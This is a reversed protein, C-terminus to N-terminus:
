GLGVHVAQLLAELVTEEHVARGHLRIAAGLERDWAPEVPVGTLAPSGARLGAEYDEARMLWPQVGFQGLLRNTIAVGAWDFDGHYRLLCGSAVLRELVTTVVTNPEGSTCVVPARGAYRDAIAELVRPNECVLVPAAVDVQAGAARRLDLATLHVPDGADAAARLRVALGSEGALRLGLTLCTSSVLDATVGHREWLRRRAQATSPVPVSAAAALARLVLQHAPRDQDLAHADGLLQAALEVRSRAHPADGLVVELVRVADAMVPVAEARSSLLGSSRLGALWPEIWPGAMPSRALLSRALEFPETRRAERQRREARRDRLPSGTVAVVVAALGGVGSRAALRDDLAALDVTVRDRTVTRGLLAGLAHRAERTAVAVELRGMPDLGGAELRARVRRWFDALEPASVWDPAAVTM